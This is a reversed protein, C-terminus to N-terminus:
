AYRKGNIKAIATINEITKVAYMQGITEKHNKLVQLLLVASSMVVESIVRSEEAKTAAFFM